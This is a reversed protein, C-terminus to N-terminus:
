RPGYAHRLPLKTSEVTSSIRIAEKPRWPAWKDSQAHQKQEAPVHSCGLTVQVHKLRLVLLELTNSIMPEFGKWGRLCCSTQVAVLAAGWVAALM